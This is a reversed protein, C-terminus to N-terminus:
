LGTSFVGPLGNYLSQWAGGIPAEFLYNFAGVFIKGRILQIATVCYSTPNGINRYSYGVQGQFINGDCTGFLLTNNYMAMASIRSLFNAGGLRRWTTGSNQSCMINNVNSTGNKLEM